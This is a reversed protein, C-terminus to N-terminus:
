EGQEIKRMAECLEHAYDPEFHYDHILENEDASSWGNNIFVKAEVEIPMMTKAGKEQHIFYIM